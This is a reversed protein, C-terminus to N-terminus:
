REGLVQRGRDQVAQPVLRVGLDAVALASRQGGAALLDDTLDESGRLGAPAAHLDRRRQAPTRKGVGKSDSENGQAVLGANHAILPDTAGVLPRSGQM